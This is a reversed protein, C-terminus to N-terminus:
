TTKGCDSAASARECQIRQERVNSLVSMNVGCEVVCASFNFNNFTAQWQRDTNGFHQALFEEPVEPIELHAHGIINSASYVARRAVCRALFPPPTLQLGIPFDETKWAIGSEPTRRGDCYKSSGRGEKRGEKRGVQQCEQGHRKWAGARELHARPWWSAASPDDQLNFVSLCVKVTNWLWENM